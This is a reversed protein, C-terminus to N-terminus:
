ENVACWGKGRKIEVKIAGNMIMLRERITATSKAGHVLDNNEGM